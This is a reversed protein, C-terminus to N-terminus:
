PEKDVKLELIELVVMIYIVILSCSLLCGHLSGEKGERGGRGEDGTRGVLSPVSGEVLLSM